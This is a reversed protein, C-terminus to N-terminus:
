MSFLLTLSCRLVAFVTCLLLSYIELDVKDVGVHIAVTRTSHAALPM